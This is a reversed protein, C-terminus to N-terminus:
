FYGMLDGLGHILVIIGVISAGISTLLVAASGIDLAEGVHPDTEDTIARAMSELASNFMEAALVAFICLVLLCWDVHNLHLLAGAVLVVAAAFFHVFFSSQGRIGCNLGHLADRFKEVWSREPRLHSPESMAVTKSPPRNERARRAVM